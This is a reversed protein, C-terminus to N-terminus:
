ILLCLYWHSGGQDHKDLNFVIGIKFKKKKVLQELDINCLEESVCRNNIKTDFDIPTPGIFEFNPDISEYQLLVQQIDLTSLWSKHNSNWDEPKSPIFTEYIIEGDKIDKVLPHKLLCYDEQCNPDTLMKKKINNWLLEKSDDINIINDSNNKNWNTGIKNLARKSFCTIKENKRPPACYKNSM